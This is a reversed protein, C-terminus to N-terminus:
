AVVVGLIPSSPLAGRTTTWGTLSTPFASAYTQARSVRVTSGAGAGSYDALDVAGMFHAVTGGQASFTQITIPQAAGNFVALAWYFGPQVAIAASFACVVVGGVNMSGPTPCEGLLVAPFGDTGTTALGLKVSVGPTNTGTQVSVSSLTAGREVPIPWAYMIDATVVQTTLASVSPLPLSITTGSRYGPHLLTGAQGLGIGGGKLM